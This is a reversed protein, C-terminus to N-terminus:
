VFSGAMDFNVGGLKSFRCSPESFVEVCLLPTDIRNKHSEVRDQLINEDVSKCLSELQEEAFIRTIRPGYM